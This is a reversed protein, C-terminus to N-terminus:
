TYGQELQNSWTNRAAVCDQDSELFTPQGVAWDKWKVVSNDSAFIFYGENIKDHIGLWFSEINESKMHSYLSKTIREDRPEFLLGGKKKCFELAEEFSKANSLKAIYFEKDKTNDGNFTM